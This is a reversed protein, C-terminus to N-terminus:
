LDMSLAATTGDVEIITCGVTQCMYDGTDNLDYTRAGLPTRGSRSWWTVEYLSGYVGGTYNESFDWDAFTASRGQPTRVCARDDQTYRRWFGDRGVRPPIHTYIFAQVCIVQTGRALRRRLRTGKTRQVLPGQVRYTDQAFATGQLRRGNWGLTPYITVGGPRGRTDQTSYGSAPAATAGAAGTVSLAAVALIPALKGPM